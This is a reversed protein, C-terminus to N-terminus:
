KKLILIVDDIKLTLIDYKDDIKEEIRKINKKTNINERFISSIEEKIIMIDKRLINIENNSVNQKNNTSKFSNLKQINKDNEKNKGYCFCNFISPM